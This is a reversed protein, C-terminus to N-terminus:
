IIRHDKWATPFKSTAVYWEYELSTLLPKLFNLSRLEGICVRSRQHKHKKSDFTMVHLDGSHIARLHDGWKWPKLYWRYALAELNTDTTGGRGQVQSKLDLKHHDAGKIDSICGSRANVWARSWRKAMGSCPSWWTGLYQHLFSWLRKEEQGM